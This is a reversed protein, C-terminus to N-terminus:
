ISKVMESVLVGGVTGSTGTTVKMSSAGWADIGGAGVTVRLPRVLRM